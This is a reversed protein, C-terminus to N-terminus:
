RDGRVARGRAGGVGGFARDGQLLFGLLVERGGLPELLLLSPAAGAGGGRHGLGGLGFAALFGLGLAVLALHAALAPIERQHPIPRAHFAIRTPARRSTASNSAAAMSASLALM